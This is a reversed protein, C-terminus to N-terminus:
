NVVTTLLLGVMQVVSAPNKEIWVLGLSDYHEIHVCMVVVAGTSNNACPIRLILWESFHCCIQLQNVSDVPFCGLGSACYLYLEVYENIAAIMFCSGM